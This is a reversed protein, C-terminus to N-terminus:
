ARGRRSNPGDVTELAPGPMRAAAVARMLLGARDASAGPPDDFLIGCVTVVQEAARLTLDFFVSIAHHRFELGVTVTPPDEWGLDVRATWAFSITGSKFFLETASQM